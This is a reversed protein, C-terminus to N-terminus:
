TWSNLVELDLAWSSPVFGLMMWCRPIKCYGEQSYLKGKQSSKWSVVRQDFDFRELGKWGPFIEISIEPYKQFSQVGVLLNLLWFELFAHHRTQWFASPTLRWASWRSLPAAGRVAYTNTPPRACCHIPIFPFSHSVRQSYRRTM